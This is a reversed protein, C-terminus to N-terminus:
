PAFPLRWAQLDDATNFWVVDDVVWVDDGVAPFRWITDDFPSWGDTRQAYRLWLRGGAWQLAQPNGPIPV